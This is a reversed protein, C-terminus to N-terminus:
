TRQGARRLRLYEAVDSDCAFKRAFLCGSAALRDADGPLLRHYTAPSSGPGPRSADWNAFTLDRRACDALM